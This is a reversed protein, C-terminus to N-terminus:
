KNFNKWKAFQTSATNTNIGAELCAAIIIQRNAHRNTKTIETAIEWVQMALSGIKPPKVAVPKSTPKQTPTMKPAPKVAVPKIVPQTTPLTITWVNLVRHKRGATWDQVVGDVLALVHGRTFVMHRGKPFYRGITSVTIQGGGAKRPITDIFTAGLLKSVAEQQHRYTGQRNVRGEAKLMKHVQSYEVNHSIAIAKVACDNKENFALSDTKTSAFTQTNM